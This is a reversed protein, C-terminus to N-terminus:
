ARPREGAAREATVGGEDGSSPRAEADSAAPAGFERRYMNLVTVLFTVVLPGLVLGVWGFVALGGLLSFFIVGGHLEMGGRLLFPRAINDV